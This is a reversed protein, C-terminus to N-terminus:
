LAMGLGVIFSIVIWGIFIVQLSGIIFEKMREFRKSYFPRFIKKKIREKKFHRPDLTLLDFNEKVQEGMNETDRVKWKINQRVKDSLLEDSNELLKQKTQLYKKNEEFSTRFDPLKPDWEVSNIMELSSEITRLARCIDQYFSQDELRKEDYKITLEICYNSFEKAESIRKNIREIQAKTM